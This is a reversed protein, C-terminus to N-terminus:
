GGRRQAQEGEWEDKPIEVYEYTTQGLTHAVIQIADEISQCLITQHGGFFTHKGGPMTLTYGGSDAVEITIRDVPVPQKIRVMEVEVEEAVHERPPIIPITIDKHGTPVNTVLKKSREEEFPIQKIVIDKSESM